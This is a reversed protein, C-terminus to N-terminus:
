DRQCVFPHFSPPLPYFDILYFYTRGDSFFVKNERGRRVEVLEGKSRRDKTTECLRLLLMKKNEFFDIKITKRKKPFTSQFFHKQLSRKNNRTRYTSFSIGSSINILFSSGITRSFARERESKIFLM